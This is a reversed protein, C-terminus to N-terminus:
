LSITIKFCSLTICIVELQRGNIETQMAIMHEGIDLQNELNLNEFFKVMWLSHGKCYALHTQQSGAESDATDETVLPKQALQKALKPQLLDRRRSHSVLETMNAELKKPLSPEIAGM